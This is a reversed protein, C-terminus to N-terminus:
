PTMSKFFSGIFNHTVYLILNNTSAVYNEKTDLTDCDIDLDQLTSLVGITL